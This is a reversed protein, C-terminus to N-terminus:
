DPKSSAIFHFLAQDNDFLCVARPRSAFAVSAGIACV